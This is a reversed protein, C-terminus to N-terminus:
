NQYSLWFYRSTMLRTRDCIAAFSLNSAATSFKRQQKSAQVYGLACITGVHKMSFGAILLFINSCIEFKKPKSCDDGAEDLSIGGFKPRLLCYVLPDLM